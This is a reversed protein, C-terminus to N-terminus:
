RSVEAQFYSARAREYDEPENVDLLVVDTEFPVERVEAQHRDIIARLGLTAERAERLEPLLAAAIVPPHGRHGEYAPLTITNGQSRHAELLRQTVWAPRPQDVNLVVVAETDEGLAAAGVRVSSARGEAYLENIVSLAGAKHVLPRVDDAAYGLVAVVRDVGAAKLQEIQYEVLTRDGWELLPKPRGMRRSEGGALLIAAITM